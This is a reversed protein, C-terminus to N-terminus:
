NRHGLLGGNRKRKIWYVGTNRRLATGGFKSRISPQGELNLSIESQWCVLTQRFKALLLFVPICRAVLWGGEYCEELAPWSVRRLLAFIADLLMWSGGGRQIRVIKLNFNPPPFRKEGAIVVVISPFLETPDSKFGSNFFTAGTTPELINHVVLSIKFFTWYQLWTSDLTEYIIGQLGAHSRAGLVVSWIWDPRM